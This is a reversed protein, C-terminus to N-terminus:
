ADNDLDFLRKVAAQLAAQDEPPAERIARSPTHLWRQGLTHALRPLVKAPDEGRAIQALAAATLEDAERNLRKRLEGVVAGADRTQVWHMFQDVHQQILEEAQEAADRRAQQNRDIIAQLDDVAYLYVDDLTSAAPEIDRPVAIDLACVPRRRRRKLAQKLAARTVIPTPSGTCSVLLDADPLYADLESFPISAGAHKHALADARAATRNCFLLRRLGRARLHAAFLEIMEGAGILLATQQTVDEFIQEALRVGAFAFSVPNRGISTQSRARKAAENAKQFLRRLTPGVAEAADADAFAQKVQGLIQPEGLVMSDLGAAVRFVHRVAAADELVYGHGSLTDADLASRSGLWRTLSDTSHQGSTILETRNCTSLVVIEELGEVQRAENLAPELEDPAFAAQERLALPATAHNLGLVLLPM